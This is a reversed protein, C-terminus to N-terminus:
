SGRCALSPTSRRRDGSTGATRAGAARPTRSQPRRRPAPRHAADLRRPPQPRLRYQEVDEEGVSRGRPRPRGRRSSDGGTTTSVELRLAESKPTASRSVGARPKMGFADKEPGANASSTAHAGPRGSPPRRPPPHERDDPRDEDDGITPDSRRPMASVFVAMKRAVIASPVRRRGTSRPTAAPWACPASSSTTAQETPRGPGERRTGVTPKTEVTPRAIKPM